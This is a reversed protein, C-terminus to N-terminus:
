STVLLTVDLKNVLSKIDSVMTDDVKKKMRNLYLFNIKSKKLYNSLSKISGDNHEFVYEVTKKNAPATMAESAGLKKVIKFSKLSNKTNAILDEAFRLNGLPEANNLMGLSIEKNPELTSEDAAIMITEKFTNFVYQTINDGILKLPSSKRKGLVIIDPKREEILSKIENKVNGFVFSYKIDMEYAKSIPTILNKMKKGTVTHKDNITRMASLQSERDVIETPKTVNFVEIEGSIMKAISVTSKLISQTSSDLNSLVLIKHKKM